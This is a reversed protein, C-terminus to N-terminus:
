LSTELGTQNTFLARLQDAYLQELIIKAIQQNNLAM